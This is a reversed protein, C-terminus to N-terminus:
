SEKTCFLPDDMTSNLAGQDNQPQGPTGLVCIMVVCLSYRNGTWLSAQTDRLIPCCYGLHQGLLGIVRSVRSLEDDSGEVRLDNM